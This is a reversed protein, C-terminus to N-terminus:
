GPRSRTARALQRSQRLLDRMPLLGAQRIMTAIPTNPDNSWFVGTDERSSYRYGVREGFRESLARGDRLTESWHVIEFSLDIQEVMVGPCEIRASPLGIPDYLTANDRPTSTIVHYGHRMAHSAPRVTQPSASPMAVIECGQNALSVWGDDSTMDWCIQIGIRAFDCAFVPCAAGPVVGGELLGDPGVVPACKRYVGVIGGDRGILLAANSTRDAERLTVPLVLHFAHSRVMARVCEISADDIAIARDAASGGPRELAFEPLVMLDIRRGPWRAAAETTALAVLREIDGTRRDLTGTFRHMATAVIVKRPLAPPAPTDSMPVTM